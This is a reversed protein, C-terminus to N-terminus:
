LPARVTRTAQPVGIDVAGLVQLLFPGGLSAGEAVESLDPLVADCARRLDAHMLEFLADDGLEAALAVSRLAM